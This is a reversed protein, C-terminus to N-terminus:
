SKASDGQEGSAPVITSTITADSVVALSQDEIPLADKGVAVPFTAVPMRVWVTVADGGPRIKTWLDVIRRLSIGVSVSRAVRAVRVKDVDYLIPRNNIQPRLM